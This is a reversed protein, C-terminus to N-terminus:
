CKERKLLIKSMDQSKKLLIGITATAAKFLLTEFICVYINFFRRVVFFEQNKVSKNNRFVFKIFQYFHKM